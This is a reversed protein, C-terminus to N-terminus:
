LSRKQKKNFFGTSGSSAIVICIYTAVCIRCASTTSASFFNQTFTNQPNDILHIPTPQPYDKRPQNEFDQLIRGAFPIHRAISM